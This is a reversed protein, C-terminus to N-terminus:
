FQGLLYIIKWKYYIAFEQTNHQLPSFSFLSFSPLSPYFPFPNTVFSCDLRTKKQKKTENQWTDTKARRIGVFSDRKWRGRRKEKGRGGGARRDEEPPPTTKGGKEEGGKECRIFYCAGEIIQNKSCPPFSSLSPSPAPIESSSSSSSRFIRETPNELSPSYRHIPISSTSSSPAIPSPFLTPFCLGQQPSSSLHDSAPTDFSPQQAEEDQTQQHHHQQRHKARASAYLPVLGGSSRSSPSSLTSFSPSCWATGPESQSLISNPPIPTPNSGVRQKKQVLTRRTFQQESHAQQEFDM